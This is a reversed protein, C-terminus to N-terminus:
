KQFVFLFFYKEAFESQFPALTIIAKDRKVRKANIGTFFVSNISLFITITRRQPSRNSLQLTIMVSQGMLANPTELLQLDVDEKGPEPLEFLFALGGRRAANLVAMREEESGEKNKYLDTIDEADRLGGASEDDVGIRKTFM